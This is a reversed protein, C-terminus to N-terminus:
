WTSEWLIKASQTPVKGLPVSAEASRPHVEKTKNLSLTCPLLFSRASQEQDTGHQPSTEVFRLFYVASKHM